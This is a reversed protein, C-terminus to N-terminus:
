ACVRHASVSYSTATSRIINTLSAHNQVLYWNTSLSSIVHFAARHRQWYRRTHYQEIKLM